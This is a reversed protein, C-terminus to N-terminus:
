LNANIYVGKGNRRPIRTEDPEMFERGLPPPEEGEPTIMLRDMGRSLPFTIHPLEIEDASVEGKEGFSYHLNKLVRRAFSLIMGAVTKTVLGMHMKETLEAGMYLVGDPLKKFKGQIQMEFLRQKGAFHAVYRPDEPKTRLMFLVKGKFFDNEFDVIENFPIQVGNWDILKVGNYRPDYMSPYQAEVDGNAEEDVDSPGRRRGSGTATPM